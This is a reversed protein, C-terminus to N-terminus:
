KSVKVNSSSDVHPAGIFPCLCLSNVAGGLNGNGGDIDITGQSVITTKGTVNVNAQGNVNININGQIVETKDKPVELNLNGDKDVSIKLGSQHNFVFDGSLKDIYWYNGNKDIFGYREPYNTDFLMQHTSSTQPIGIYFPHYIDYPFVVVVQSDIEPVSFASSDSRGGLGISQVPYAWPYDDLNDMLNPIRIKVRGLKKPDNNDVVIGIWHKQLHNAKKTLNLYDM